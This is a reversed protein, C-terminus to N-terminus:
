PKHLSRKLQRALQIPHWPAYPSRAAAWRLRLRRGWPAPALAARGEAQLATRVQDAFRDWNFHEDLLRWNEAQWALLDASEMQQMRDLVACAAPLNNLPLNPIGRYGEYGSQPTCIPILGWAMGELLVTPNADSFGATLIFDHSAVLHQSAPQSFNQPGLARLGAIPRRSEGIWAFAYAPRAQALATLYGTNKVWATNGIYLFRRQGPPAFSAKVPPFDRRDVALDLQTVRPAWHSFPSAPLTRMWHNGTIALYADCYPLVSDWAAVQRVDGHAYPCLMIARAWGPERVSRRFITQPDPHPHGLLRDGPQPHLVSRADWDHLVVRYDRDLRRALNRGIADPCSIRDGHPYVLHLTPKM